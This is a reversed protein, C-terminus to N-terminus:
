VEDLVDPKVMIRLNATQLSKQLSAVDSERERM